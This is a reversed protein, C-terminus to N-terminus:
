MRYSRRRFSTESFTMLRTRVLIIYGDAKTNHHSHRDEQQVRGAVTM